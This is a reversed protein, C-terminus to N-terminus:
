KNFTVEYEEPHEYLRMYSEKCGSCRQGLYLECKDCIKGCKGVCKNGDIREM